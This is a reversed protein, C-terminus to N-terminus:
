KGHSIRLIRGDTKSIEVLVVGGVWGKPLSGQVTWVGKALTAHFPKEAAIKDAGYIPESVAIAIKIATAETPIVGAKPMANHKPEDAAFLSGAAFYLICSLLISARM